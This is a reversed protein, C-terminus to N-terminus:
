QPTGPQPEADAVEDTAPQEPAPQAEAVPEPVVTEVHSMVGARTKDRAAEMDAVVKAREPDSGVWETIKPVTLNDLDIGGALRYADLIVQLDDNSVSVVYVDDQTDALADAEKETAGIVKFRRVIDERAMPEETRHPGTPNTAYDHWDSM